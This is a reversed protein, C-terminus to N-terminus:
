KMKKGGRKRRSREVMCACVRGYGSRSWLEKKKEKRRKKRPRFIAPIAAARLRVCANASSLGRLLIYSLSMLPLLSTEKRKTKGSSFLASSFLSFLPEPVVNKREGWDKRITISPSNKKEGSSLSFFSLILSLLWILCCCCVQEGPHSNSLPKLGPFSSPDIERFQFQNPCCSPLLPDVRAPQWRSLYSLISFQVCSYKQNVYWIYNM